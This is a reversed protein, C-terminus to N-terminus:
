FVEGEDEEIDDIFDLILNLMPQRTIKSIKRYIKEKTRLVCLKKQSAIREQEEQHFLKKYNTM